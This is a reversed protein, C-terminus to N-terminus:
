KGGHSGSFYIRHNFYEYESFYRVSRSAKGSSKTEHWEVTAKGKAKIYVGRVKKPESLKFHVKGRVTQGPKYKNFPHNTSIAFDRIGM